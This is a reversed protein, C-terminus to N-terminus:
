YEPEYHHYRLVTEFGLREDLPTGMESSQLAAVEIAAALDDVDTVADM